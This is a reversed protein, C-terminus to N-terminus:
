YSQFTNSYRVPKKDADFTVLAMLGTKTQYNAMLQADICGPTIAFSLPRDLVLAQEQSILASFRTPDLNSSLPKSFYVISILKVTTEKSTDIESVTGIPKMVATISDAAIGTSTGEVAFGTSPTITTLDTLSDPGVLIFNVGIMYNYPSIDPPTEGAWLTRLPSISNIAQALKASLAFRARREVSPIDDGPMFSKPRLGIVNKGGRQRFTIDGVTGSVKGLVSKNLEAM